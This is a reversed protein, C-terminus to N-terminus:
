KEVIKLGYKALTSIARQAQATTLDIMLAGMAKEEPTKPPEEVKLVGLEILAKIYNRALTDGATPMNKQLIKVAEDETM